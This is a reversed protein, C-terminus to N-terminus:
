VQWVCLLVQASILSISHSNLAQVFANGAPKTHFALSSIAHFDCDEGTHIRDRGETPLQEEQSDSTCGCTGSAQEGSAQCCSSRAMPGTECCKAVCCSHEQSSAESKACGCLTPVSAILPSCLLAAALMSTIMRRLELPFMVLRVRYATRINELYQEDDAEPCTFM